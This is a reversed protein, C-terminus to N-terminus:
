VATVVVSAAGVASPEDVDPAPTRSLAVALGMTAAFIMLEVWAVRRFVWRDGADLAPLSRHRHWWGVTVLGGLALAKLLVLRGFDTSLLQGPAELVVAASLLGSVGVALVLLPAVRSFRRVALTREPGSGLLLLAVLAGSWALAGAIHLMMGVLAAVNLVRSGDDELYEIVAPPVTALLSVLLMARTGAMTLVTRSAVAVLGTLLVVAAQARGEPVDRVFSFLAVPSAQGLGSDLFEALLGPLALAGALAWFAASWTAARLWQYGAPSVFRAGPVLLGAAVLCGVTVAGSVDSVLRSAPLVWGVRIDPTPHGTSPVTMVAGVALVAAVGVLVAVGLPTLWFAARSGYRTRVRRGVVTM